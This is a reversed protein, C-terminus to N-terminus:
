SRQGQYGDVVAQLRAALRAASEKWSINIQQELIADVPPPHALFAALADALDAVAGAECLRSFSPRAIEPIGGVPTSVFPTGCAISERLVNPIGETHSPLAVVDAARYWDALEAHPRVGAFFARETLRHTHVLQELIHRERGQGVFRVQFAVGRERMLACAKILDAAGKTVLLEGAFLILKGDGPLGLRRRSELRDGRHFIARSIGEPITHVKDAPVGLAGVSRALDESVTIVDASGQLAETTRAGRAGTAEILVDSGLVKLVVPLGAAQGFRVAAWGDPHAWSSLIVDPQFTRLERSVVSRVSREFFMGYHHSWMKPPYYYTPHVVTINVLWEPNASKGKLGVAESVRATWPIPRIIRLEHLQALEAFQQRNYPAFTPQFATPYQHTLALIRM